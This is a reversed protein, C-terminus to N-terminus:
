CDGEEGKAREFCTTNAKLNNKIINLSFIATLDANRHFKIKAEYRKRIKQNKRELNEKEQLWIEFTSRQVLECM